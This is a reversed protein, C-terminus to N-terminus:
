KHYQENSLITCARYIQELLLVRAIEHTFTLPSLSLTFDLSQRTQDDFGLPGGILFAFRGHETIWRGLLMAFSESSYLKGEPALGVRWPLDATAERLLVGEKQMAIPDAMGRGVMDKLTVVEIQSYRNIRKVYDTEARRWHGAKIKGVAAIRMRGSLRSM